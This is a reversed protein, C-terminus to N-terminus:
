KRWMIKLDNIIESWILVCVVQSLLSIILLTINISGLAAVALSFSLLFIIIMEIMLLSGFIVSIVKFATARM